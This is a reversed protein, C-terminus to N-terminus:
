DVDAYLLALRQFVQGGNFGLNAGRFGGESIGAADQNAEGACFGQARTIHHFAGVLLAYFVEGVPYGGL